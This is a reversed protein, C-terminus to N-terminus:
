RLLDLTKAFMQKSANMATVNAEYARSAGILDTM